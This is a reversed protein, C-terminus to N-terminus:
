EVGRYITNRPLPAIKNSKAGFSQSYLNPGLCDERRQLETYFILLISFLTALGGVCVSGLFIFVNAKGKQLVTYFTCLSGPFHLSTVFVCLAFSFSSM